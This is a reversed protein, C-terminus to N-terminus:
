VFDLLQWLTFSDYPHGFNFFFFGTVAVFLADATTLGVHRKQSLLSYLIGLLGAWGSFAGAYLPFTYGFVPTLAVILLAYGHASQSLAFTSRARRL